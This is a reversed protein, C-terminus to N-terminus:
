ELRGGADMRWEEDAYEKTEADHSVIMVACGLDAAQRLMSLIIRTSEDDLDSTPEDAFVFKPNGALARAICMRRREGGSLEKAQVDCLHSIEMQELLSKCRESSFGTGEEKTDASFVSGARNRYIQQPLTINEMVTLEPLVDAGQPIMGFLQNRLRSLADDKMAYLDQGDLIVKGSDPTLLGAMMNMLTTKGSGSRGTLVTVKGSVLTLDTKRVAFFRNSEGKGRLYWKEVASAKLIMYSQREVAFPISSNGAREWLSYIM